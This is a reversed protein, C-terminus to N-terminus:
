IYCLNQQLSSEAAYRIMLTDRQIRLYRVQVKLKVPAKTLLSGRGCGNGKKWQSTWYHLMLLCMVFREDVCVNVGSRLPDSFVM